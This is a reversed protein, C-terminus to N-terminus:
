CSSHHSMSSLLGGFDCSPLFSNRPDKKTTDHNPRQRSSPATVNTVFSLGLRTLGQFAWGGGEVLLLAWKWLLNLSFQCIKKEVNEISVHCDHRNIKQISPPFVLTQNERHTMAISPHCANTEKQLQADRGERKALRWCSQWELKPVM